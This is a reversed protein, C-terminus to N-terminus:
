CTTPSPNDLDVKPLDFEAYVSDTLKGDTVTVTVREPSTGVHSVTSATYRFTWQGAATPTVTGYTGYRTSVQPTGISDGDPDSATIRFVIQGPTVYSGTTTTGSCVHLPPNVINVTPPRNEPAPPPPPIVPPPVVTTQSSCYNENVVNGNNDHYEVKTTGDSYAITVKACNANILHTTQNIIQIIQTNCQSSNTNPGKCDNEVSAEQKADQSSSNGQCATGSNTPNNANGGVCGATPKPAPQKKDCKMAAIVKMVKNWSSTRFRMVKKGCIVVIVPKGTVRQNTHKIKIIGLVNSCRRIVVITYKQKGVTFTFIYIYVTQGRRFSTTQLGGSANRGSNYKCRKSYGVRCKGKRAKTVDAKTLASTSVGTQRAVFARVGRDHRLMAQMQGRAIRPNDSLKPGVPALANAAPATFTLGVVAAMSIALLSRLIAKYSM